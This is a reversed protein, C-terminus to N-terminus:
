SNRQLFDRVYPAFRKDHEKILSAIESPSEKVSKTSSCFGDETSLRTYPDAGYVGNIRSISGIRVWFTDGSLHTLEINGFTPRM